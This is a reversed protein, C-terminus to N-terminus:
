RPSKLDHPTMYPFFYQGYDKCMDRFGLWPRAEPLDFMNGVIPFPRPGPPLALGQSRAKWDWLSRLYRLLAVCATALLIIAYAPIYANFIEM